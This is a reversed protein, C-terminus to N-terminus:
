RLLLNVNSVDTLTDATAARHSYVAKILVPVPIGGSPSSGSPRPTSGPTFTIAVLSAAALAMAAPGVIRLRAQDRVRDLISLSLPAPLPEDQRLRVTISQLENRFRRCEHCAALHARLRIAEFSSLEDDLQASVHQRALECVARVPLRPNRAMQQKRRRPPASTQKTKSYGGVSV